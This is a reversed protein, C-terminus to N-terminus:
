KHAEALTCLNDFLEAVTIVGVGGPVASAISAKDKADADVDGHMKGQEDFNIGADIIVGGEKVMDATIFNQRGLAAILIDASRTEAALNVTKSHCLTVTANESTMMVSLPNGVIISRGVITVKKGEIPINNDKLMRVIAKPTSPKVGKERSILKGLNFNHIGEVDKSHHMINVLYNADIHEPMPKQVMIGTVSKDENLQQILEEVQSQEVSAPLNHVEVAVGVEDGFRRIGNVYVQSPQDDGVQVVVMKMPTNRVSQRIQEKMLERIEKGYILM